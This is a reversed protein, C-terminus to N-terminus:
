ENRGGNRLQQAYKEAEDEPINWRDQMQYPVGFKRSARWGSIFGQKSAEAQIDRLSQAPNSRWLAWLETPIPDDDFENGGDCEEAIEGMLKNFKDVHARLERNEQELSKNM